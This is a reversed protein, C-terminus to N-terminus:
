ICGDLDQVESVRSQRREDRRVADQRAMELVAEAARGFRDQYRGGSGGGGQAMADARYLAVRDHRREILGMAVLGLGGAEEADVVLGVSRFQFHESFEL